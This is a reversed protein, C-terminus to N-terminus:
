GHLTIDEPRLLPGAPDIGLRMNGPWHGSKVSPYPAALVQYSRQLEQSERQMLARVRDEEWTPFLRPLVREALVAAVALTSHGWRPSGKGETVKFWGQGYYDDLYFTQGSYTVEVAFRITGALPECWLSHVHPTGVRVMVRRAFCREGNWRTDQGSPNRTYRIKKM